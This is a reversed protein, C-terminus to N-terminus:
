IMDFVDKTSGKCGRGKKIKKKKRKADKPTRKHKRKKGGKMIRSGVGRLAEFGRKKLVGKLNRDGGSVDDIVDRTFKLASPAFTRFLFPMATKAINAITSFFGAGRQHHRSPPAFKVTQIDSLSGGISSPLSSLLTKFENETPPYFVVRGSSQM